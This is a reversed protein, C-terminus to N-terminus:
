VLTGGPYYYAVVKTKTKIWILNTRRRQVRPSEPGKCRLLSSNYQVTPNHQKLRNVVFM